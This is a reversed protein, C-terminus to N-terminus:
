RRACRPTTSTSRRVTYGTGPEARGHGAHPRAGGAGVVVGVALAHIGLFPTLLVACVIIAVNYVNPAMAPAGFIGVSNLGATMVAGVALLMPSLLMVRTLLVRLDLQTAIRRPCSSRSSPRLRSGSSSPWRTDAGPDDPERHHGSPASGSRGRRPGATGLGRARPCFGVAGAAVLQFLTDPIRFANCLVLRPQRQPRRVRRLLRRHAALRHLRSLVVGAVVVVGALAIARGGLRASRMPLAEGAALGAALGPGRRIAEDNPWAYEHAHIRIVPRGGFRRKFLYLNWLPHSEDQARRAGVAHGRRGHRLRTFGAEAAWRIIRWQLLHNARTRRLDAGDRSGAAFYVLLKGSHLLLAGTDRGWAPSGCAPWAPRGSGGGNSWSTTAIASSSARASARPLTCRTSIPWPPEERASPDAMDVRESTVGLSRAEISTRYAHHPRAPRRQATRLAELPVIM